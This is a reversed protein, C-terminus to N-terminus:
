RGLKCPGLARLQETMENVVAQFIQGESASIWELRFRKQDIGAAALLAKVLAM